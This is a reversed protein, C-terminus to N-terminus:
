TNLDVNQYFILFTRQATKSFVRFIENKGSKGLKLSNSINKFFETQPVKQGIDDGSKISFILFVRLASESFFISSVFLNVPLVSNM